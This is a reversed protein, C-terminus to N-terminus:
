DKPASRALYMAAKELTSQSEGFLGLGRNCHACLLGRVAGTNHDHDVAFSCGKKRPDASGCIACVGGQAKLMDDFTEQTLGYQKLCNNRRWRKTREPNALRYKKRTAKVKEHNDKVYNRYYEAHCLRCRRRLGKGKQPFFESTAPNTEGCKSCTRLTDDNTGTM